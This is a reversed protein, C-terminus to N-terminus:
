PLRLRYHQLCPTSRTQADRALLAGATTQADRASAAASEFLVVGVGALLIVAAGAVALIKVM